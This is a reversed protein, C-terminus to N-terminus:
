STAIGFGGSAIERRGGTATIGSFTGLFTGGCVVRIGGRLSVLAVKGNLTVLAVADVHSRSSRGRGFPRTARCEAADAAGFRRVIIVVGDPWHASPFVIPAPLIPFTFNAFFMSVPSCTLEDEKARSALNVHIYAATLITGLCDKSSCRLARSASLASRELSIRVARSDAITLRTFWGYM